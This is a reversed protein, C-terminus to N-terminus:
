ALAPPFLDLWVLSLTIFSEPSAVSTEESVVEERDRRRGSVGDVEGGFLVDSEVVLQM